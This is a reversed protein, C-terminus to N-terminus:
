LMLEWRIVRGRRATHVCDRVMADGAITGALVGIACNFGGSRSCSPDDMAPITVRM